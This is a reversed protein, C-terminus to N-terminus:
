RGCRTRRWRRAPKSACCLWCGVVSDDPARVPAAAVFVLGQARLHLRRGQFDPHERIDPIVIPENAKLVLEFVSNARPVEIFAGGWHSKVWARTEDAFALIATEADFYDAALRTIADYGPEPPTDLIALSELAALRANEGGAQAREPEASSMAVGALSGLCSRM